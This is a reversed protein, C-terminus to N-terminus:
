AIRSESKLATRLSGRCGGWERLPCLVVVGQGAGLLGVPFRPADQGSELLCACQGFGTARGEAVGDVNQRSYGGFQGFGGHSGILRGSRGGDSFSKQSVTSILREAISLRSTTGPWNTLNPGLFAWRGIPQLTRRAMRSHRSTTGPAPLCRRVGNKPWHVGVMRGFGAGRVESAQPQHAWNPQDAVKLGCMPFPGGAPSILGHHQDCGGHPAVNEYNPKRGTPRDPV